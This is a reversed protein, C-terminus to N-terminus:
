SRYDGGSITKTKVITKIDSVLEYYIKYIYMSYRYWIYKSNYWNYKTTYRYVYIHYIIYPYILIGHLEITGTCPYINERERDTQNLQRWALHYILPSIHSQRITSTLWAYQVVFKVRQSNEAAVQFSNSKLDTLTSVPFVLIHLGLQLTSNQNILLVHSHLYIIYIICM